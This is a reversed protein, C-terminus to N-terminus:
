QAEHFLDQKGPAAAFSLAHPTAREAHAFVTHSQPEEHGVNFQQTQDHQWAYCV